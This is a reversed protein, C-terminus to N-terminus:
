EIPVSVGACRELFSQEVPRDNNNKGIVQAQCKLRRFQGDDGDRYQAQTVEYKGLYFGNTLTIQHQTESGDRGAETTPSGMM